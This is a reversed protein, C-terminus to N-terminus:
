ICCTTYCHEMFLVAWTIFLEHKFHCTVYLFSLFHKLLLGTKVVNCDHHDKITRGKQGLKKRWIGKKKMKMKIAEDM